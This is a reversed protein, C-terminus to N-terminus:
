RQLVISGEQLEFRSFSFHSMDIVPDIQFRRNLDALDFTFRGVSVTSAEALTIRKGSAVPRLDGKLYVQQLAKEPLLGRIQGLIRKGEGTLQETPIKELDVMMEVILRDRHITTKAGRVVAYPDFDDQGAMEALLAPVFEEATIRVSGKQELTRQLPTLARGATSGPAEAASVSERSGPAAADARGQQRPPPDIGPLNHSEEPLGSEAGTEPQTSSRRAEERAAPSEAPTKRWEEGAMQGERYWEPQYFIRNMLWSRLVWVVAMFIIIAVLWHLVRKM